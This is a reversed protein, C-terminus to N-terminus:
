VEQEESKRRLYLETFDIPSLMLPPVGGDQSVTAIIRRAFPFLLAPCDVLLIRELDEGMNDVTFLGAYNLEIVFMKGEKSNAEINILLSVEYLADEFTAVQVDLQVEISPSADGGLSAPANPSEFSLDKLYQVNATFVPMTTDEDRM